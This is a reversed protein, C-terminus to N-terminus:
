LALPPWEWPLAPKKRHTGPKKHSSADNPRKPWAISGTKARFHPPLARRTRARAAPAAM